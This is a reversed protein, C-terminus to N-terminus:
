ETSYTRVKDEGTRPTGQLTEASARPMVAEALEANGHKTEKNVYGSCPNVSKPPNIVGGNGIPLVMCIDHAFIGILAAVNM